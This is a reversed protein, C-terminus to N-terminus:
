HTPPPKPPEVGTCCGLLPPDQLIEDDDGPPLPAPRTPLGGPPVLVWNGATVEVPKGGVQAQVSVTGEDVAVFTGVAPDVLVRLYTGKDTVMAEPTEIEIPKEGGPLAALRVRGRHVKLKPNCGAPDGVDVDSTRLVTLVSSLSLGQKGEATVQQCGFQRTFAVRLFAKEDLKLKMGREVAEKEQLDRPAEGSLPYARVQPRVILAIGVEEGGAAPCPSGALFCLALLAIVKRHTSSITMLVGL